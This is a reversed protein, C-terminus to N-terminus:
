GGAKKVNYGKESLVSVLIDRHDGQIEIKNNKITGGSGCLHKLKKALNQM